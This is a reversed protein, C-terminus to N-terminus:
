PQEVTPTLLVVHSRIRATDREEVVVSLAIQGHNNPASYWNIGGLSLVKGLGTAMGGKLVLALQGDAALRYVADVNTDGSQVAALILRQGANNADTISIIRAIKGGGPLDQGPVFLPTAKGAEALHLGWPDGQKVSALLLVNQNSNNLYVQGIEVFQQGGPADADISLVPSLTGKEWAYVSFSTIQDQDDGQRRALFVVRGANDLRPRITRDVKRGDPLLQGVLVVPQIMGDSTRFVIGQVLDSTGSKKLRTFFAVENRDNIAGRGSGPFESSVDDFAWEDFAFAKEADLQVLKQAQGDWLFSKFFAQFQPFFPDFDWGLTLVLNGADNMSLPFDTFADGPWKIGFTTSGAVMIPTLKGDAYQILRDREGSRTTFYIQGSNAVLIEDLLEGIAINGATGGRKAVVILKGDAYKLLLDNSVASEGLFVVEGKDNLGGLTFLDLNNLRSGDIVDGRKAISQIKYGAQARAAGMTLLTLGVLSAVFRAHRV